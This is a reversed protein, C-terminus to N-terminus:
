FPALAVGFINTMNIICQNAVNSIKLMKMPKNEFIFICFIMVYFLGRPFIKSTSSDRYVFNQFGFIEDYGPLRSSMLSIILEIKMIMQIVHLPLDSVSFIRDNTARLHTRSVSPLLPDM